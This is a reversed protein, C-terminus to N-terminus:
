SKWVYREMINNVKVKKDKKVMFVAVGNKEAHDLGAEEGMIFISKAMIDAKVVNDSVVTVTLLDNKASKQSKPDILHHKKENGVRWNKRTIGSTAAAMDKLKLIELTNEPYLPDEIGIAWCDLNDAINVGSCFIDGGADVIFNAYKEQLYNSVKQVVYGKGIGGLEIKVDAPKYVTNEALFKIKSFKGSEGLYKIDINKKNFGKQSSIVYGEKLLPYYISPDFIGKTRKFYKLSLRLMSYLDDSVKIEGSSDNFRTLENDPLFRSFRQEFDKFIAFSKEVDEKIDAINEATVDAIAIGVYIDTAMIEKRLEKEVLLPNHNNM